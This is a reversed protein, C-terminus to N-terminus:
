HLYALTDQSRSLPILPYLRNRVKKHVRQAGTSERQHIPLGVRESLSQSIISMIMKEMYLM